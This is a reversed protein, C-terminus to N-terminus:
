DRIVETSDAPILIRILKHQDDFWMSWNGMDSQLDIRNLDRETGRIRVHERGTFELTVMMSTRQRPIVVGFQSKPLPCGPEGPKPQCTTALYKWALIERHSFFYDDLVMTTHPMLYPQEMPKDSTKDGGTIREILFENQPELVAQAKTGTEKWEYRLLAGSPGLTLESTQAAKSGDDLKFQSTAVSSDPSQRISFTETGVRRGHVFVGFSGSDVVNASSKRAQKSKASAIMATAMVVVLVLMSVVRRNRM